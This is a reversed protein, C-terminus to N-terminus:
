DTLYDEEFNVEITPNKKGSRRDLERRMAFLEEVDEFAPKGDKAKAIDLRKSQWM